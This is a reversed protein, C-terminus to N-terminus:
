RWADRGKQVCITADSMPSWKDTGRNITVTVCVYSQNPLDRPLAVREMFPARPNDANRPWVGNPALTIPRTAVNHPFNVWDRTRAPGNVMVYYTFSQYEGSVNTIAFSYPFNGGREGVDEGNKTFKVALPAPTLEITGADGYGGSIYVERRSILYNDARVEVLYKGDALGLWETWGTQTEEDWHWVPTAYFFGFGDYDTCGQVPAELEKEFRGCNTYAGWQRGDPSFRTLTVSVGYVEASLPQGTRSARVDFFLIGEPPAPPDPTPETTSGGGGGSTQASRVVSANTFFAAFIVLVAIGLRVM